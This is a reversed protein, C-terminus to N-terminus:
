RLKKRELHIIWVILFVGSSVKLKSLKLGSRKPWAVKKFSSAWAITMWSFNAISIQKVELKRYAM